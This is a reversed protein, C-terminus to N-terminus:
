KTYKREMRKMLSEMEANLKIYKEELERQMEDKRAVTGQQEFTMAKLGDSIRRSPNEKDIERL